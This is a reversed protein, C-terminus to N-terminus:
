NDTWLLVSAGDGVIVSLSAERMAVVNKEAKSPLSAWCRDPESRALWEWRLRLVFGFFRLDLVGLGGLGTPRCVGIWAVRCKGGSVSETGAWLFARRHKDIQKIAWESLCCAISLHISIASLTVKTLLVRGADTLLGSKWTPIRAAIADVLPQEDIRQLRKLSLPIGLYRCPFTQLVYPFTAQVEAVMADDCRIPTAVCKEVNTVLGFADALLRLIESLCFM